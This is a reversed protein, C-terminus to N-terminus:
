LNGAFQRKRLHQRGVSKSNKQQELTERYNGAGLPHQSVAAVVFIGVIYEASLKRM